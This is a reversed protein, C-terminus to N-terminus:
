CFKRTTLCTPLCAPLIRRSIPSTGWPLAACVQYRMSSPTADSTGGSGEVMLHSMCLNANAEGAIALDGNICTPPGFCQSYFEKSLSVVAATCCSPM